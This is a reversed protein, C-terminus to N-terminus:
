FDIFVYRETLILFLSVYIFFYLEHRLNAIVVKWLTTGVVQKNYTQAKNTIHAFQWDVTQM